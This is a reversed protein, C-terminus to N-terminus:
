HFINMRKVIRVNKECCLGGDRGNQMLVKRRLPFAFRGEDNKLRVEPLRSWIPDM